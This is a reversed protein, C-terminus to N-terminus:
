PQAADYFRVTRGSESKAWYMTEDASNLVQDEEFKSGDFMAVGLSAYCEYDITKSVGEISRIKLPYPAILATLIKAAVAEAGARAEQFSGNLKNLLIVFEDGGYRAVTDTQRVCSKLRNAVAVLLDDGAEHGLEDNLSKFKDLDLFIAASYSEYRENDLIIQKLRDSLLRRNPLGTLPDYYALESIASLALASAKLNVTNREVIERLDHITKEKAQAVEENEHVIGKLVSIAAEGKEIVELSNNQLVQLASNALESIRLAEEAKEARLQMEKLSSRGADAVKIKEKDLIAGDGANLARPMDSAELNGIGSSSNPTKKTKEEM